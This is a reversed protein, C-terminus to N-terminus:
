AFCRAVDDNQDTGMNDTNETLFGASYHHAVVSRM